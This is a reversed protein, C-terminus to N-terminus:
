CKHINISNKSKSGNRYKLWWVVFLLLWGKRKEDFVHLHHLAPVHILFAFLIVIKHQSYSHGLQGFVNHAEKATKGQYWFVSTRVLSHKSGTEKTATHLHSVTKLVTEPKRCVELRQVLQWMDAQIETMGSKEGVKFNAHFTLEGYRNELHMNNINNLVIWGHMYGSKEKKKQSCLTFFRKTFCYVERQHCIGSKDLWKIQKFGPM